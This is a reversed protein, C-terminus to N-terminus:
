LNTGQKAYANIEVVLEAEQVKSLKGHQSDTNSSHKGSICNHLTSSPVSFERTVSKISQNPHTSHHNLASSKLGAM